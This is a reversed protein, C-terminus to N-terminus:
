DKEILWLKYSFPVDSFPAEPCNPCPECRDQFISDQLNPDGAVSVAYDQVLDEAGGGLLALQYGLEYWVQVEENFPESGLKFVFKYLSALNIGFAAPYGCKAVIIGWLAYNLDWFNCHAGNITVCDKCELSACPPASGGSPFTIDFGTMSLPNVHLVACRDNFLFEQVPGQALYAEIDYLIQNLTVAFKQTIDHGCIGIPELPERTDIKTNEADTTTMVPSPFENNQSEQKEDYGPLALIVPEAEGDPLPSADSVPKAPLEDAVAQAGWLGILSYMLVLSMMRQGILRM